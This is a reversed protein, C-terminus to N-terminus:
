SATWDSSDSSYNNILLRTNKIFNRQWSVAADEWRCAQYYKNGAILGRCMRNRLYVDMGPDDGPRGYCHYYYYSYASMFSIFESCFVLIWALYKSSNAVQRNRLSSCLFGKGSSSSSARREVTSSTKHKLQAERTATAECLCPCYNRLALGTQGCGNPDKRRIKLVQSCGVVNGDM